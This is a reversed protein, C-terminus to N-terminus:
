VTTDRVKPGQVRRNHQAQPIGAIVFVVIIVLPPGLSFDYLHRQGLAEPVCIWAVGTPLLAIFGLVTASRPMNAPRGIWPLRAAPNAASLIAVVRRYLAAGIVALAAAACWWAFTV